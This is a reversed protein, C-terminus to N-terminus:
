HVAETKVGRGMRSALKKQGAMWGKEFRAYGLTGAEHPCVDALSKGEMAADYGAKEVAELKAEVEEAPDGNEPDDQPEDADDADADAFLDRQARKGNIYDSACAKLKDLMPIFEAPLGNNNSGGGMAEKLTPVQFNGPSNSEDRHILLSFSLQLREKADTAINISNVEVGSAVIPWPALLREKFAQLANIFAADPQDYSVLGCAIADGDGHPESWELTMKTGNWAIKSFKAKPRGAAIEVEANGTGTKERESGTQGSATMTEAM